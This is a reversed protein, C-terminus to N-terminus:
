RTTSAPRSAPGAPPRRKEKFGEFPNRCSRCFHTTRCPTPGFAAEMVTDESGCYPCPVGSLRMLPVLSQGQQAPSAEWHPSLGLAHLGKKGEETIRDTTWPPDYVFRVRVDRGGAVARLVKEADEGIIDKAPCGIFTPLLSADYVFGEERLATRLAPSSGFSPCRFGLPRVDLLGNIAENTARLDRSIDEPAADPLEARHLYSHSGVEHGQLAFARVAERGHRFELDRGVVFVTMRLGLRDCLALCRDTVLGLISPAQEWDGGHARLYAWTDDLDLSLTAIM